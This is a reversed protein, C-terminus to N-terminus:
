WFQFCSQGWIRSQSIDLCRRAEPESGSVSNGVPPRLFHEIRPVTRSVMKTPDIASYSGDTDVYCLFYLVLRDNAVYTRHNIGSGCFRFAM